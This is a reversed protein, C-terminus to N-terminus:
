DGARAIHRQGAEIAVAEDISVQCPLPWPITPVPAALVKSRLPRVVTVPRAKTSPPPPASVMVPELKASSRRPPLPLSTMAPPAPASKSVPAAPLSLKRNLDSSSKQRPRTIEVGNNTERMGGVLDVECRDGADSAVCRKDGRRTRHRRVTDAKVLTAAIGYDNGICAIRRVLDIQLDM